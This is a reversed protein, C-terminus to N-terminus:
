SELFPREVKKAPGVRGGWMESEVNAMPQNQTRPKEQIITEELSNFGDLLHDVM